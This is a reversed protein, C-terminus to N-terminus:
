AASQNQDALKADRHAAFEKIAFHRGHSGTYVFVSRWGCSCSPVREWKGDAGLVSLLRISHPVFGARTKV